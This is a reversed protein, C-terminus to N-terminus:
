EGPYFIEVDHDDDQDDDNLRAQRLSLIRARGEQQVLRCEEIAQLALAEDQMAEHREDLYAMIAFILPKVAEGSLASLVFSEGEYGLINKVETVIKQQDEATVLDMKNFVLLRTM